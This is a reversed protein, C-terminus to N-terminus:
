AKAFAKALCVAASRSSKSAARLNQASQCIGGLYRSRFSLLVREHPLRFHFRSPLPCGEVREPCPSLMLYRLLTLTLWDQLLHRTPEIGVRAVLLRGLSTWSRPALSSFCM